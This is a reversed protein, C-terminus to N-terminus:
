GTKCAAHWRSLFDLLDQPPRLWLQAATPRYQPRVLVSLGRGEIARFADEDTLDDGLYAAAVQQEDNLAERVAHGKNRGPARLEIGGDFDHWVLSQHPGPKSWRDFVVRRIEMVLEISLGRWHVALSGVKRECRGGANEIATAWRDVEMLGKRAADSLPALEYEGDFRLKEWGHSGWMEPLRRLPLLPLLDRIWRGSVIVIRARADDMIADLREVVGPYPAAEAPNIKFPALTGDYDLLLVRRPARAIDRFFRDLDVTQELAQM